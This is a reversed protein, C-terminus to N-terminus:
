SRTSSRRRSAGARRRRRGRRQVVSAPIWGLLFGTEHAGLEINARQSYPHAATAESYMGAM